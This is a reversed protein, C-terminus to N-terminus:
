VEETRRSLRHSVLLRTAEAVADDLAQEGHQPYRWREDDHNSIPEGSYLSSADWVQYSRQGPKWGWENVLIAVEAGNLGLLVGEGHGRMPIGRLSVCAGLGARRIKETVQELFTGPTVAPPAPIKGESLAADVLWRGEQGSRGIGVSQLGEGVDALASWDHSGIQKVVGKGDRRQYVGARLHQWWTM